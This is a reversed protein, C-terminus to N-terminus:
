TRRMLPKWGNRDWYFLPLTADPICHEFALCLGLNHFGRWDNEPIGARRSAEQVFSNAAPLLREPWIISDSALASYKTPLIHAAQLHVNPCEGVIRAAGHQTCLVPCYFFRSGRLLMSIRKFSMRLSGKILYERAWTTRFQQGSGVFDDVFVVPRPGNDVLEELVKEPPLIREEPIALAQRAKRAFMYGSDTPSPTEGTVYTILVDELFSNWAARTSLFPEGQRRISRSLGHFAGCFLETVLPDRFLMFANLLHIAQEM